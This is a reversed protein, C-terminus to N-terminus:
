REQAGRKALFARATKAADCCGCNDDAIDRLAAEASEARQTAAYLDAALRLAIPEREAAELAAIADSLRVHPSNRRWLEEASLECPVVAVAILDATTSM